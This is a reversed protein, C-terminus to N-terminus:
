LVIIFAKESAKEFSSFIFCIKGIKNKNDAYQGEWTIFSVTKPLGLDTFSYTSNRFLEPGNVKILLSSSYPWAVIITGSIKLSFILLVQNSVSKQLYM